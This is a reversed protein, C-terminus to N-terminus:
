IFSVYMQKIIQNQYKDISTKYNLDMEKSIYEDFSKSCFTKAFENILINEDTNKPMSFTRKQLANRGAQNRCENILRRRHSVGPSLLLVDEIHLTFGRYYQLFLTFLKLFAKVLDAAYRKEYLEYYCHVVSALTSGCHAKDILDSLLHGHRIIVDTDAMLDINIANSKSPWSILILHHKM